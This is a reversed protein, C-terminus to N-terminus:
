THPKALDFLLFGTQKLIANWLVDFDPSLSLTDLTPNYLFLGAHESDTPGDAPDRLSIVPPNERWSGGWGGHLKSVTLESRRM